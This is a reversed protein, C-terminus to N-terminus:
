RVDVRSQKNFEKIVPKLIVTDAIVEEKIEAGNTWAAFFVLILVIFLGLKTSPTRKM